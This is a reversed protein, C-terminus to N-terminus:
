TGTYHEDRCVVVILVCKVPGLLTWMLEGQASGPTTSFVIIANRELIGESVEVCVEVPGENEVVTYNTAM